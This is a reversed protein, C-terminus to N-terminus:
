ASDIPLRNRASFSESRTRMSATRTFWLPSWCVRSNSWASIVDPRLLEYAARRAQLVALSAARSAAALERRADAQTQAQASARARAVMAHAEARADALTEECEHVVDDLLADARAQAVALLATRLPQLTLDAAPM